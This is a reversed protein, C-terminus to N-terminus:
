LSNVILFLDITNIGIIIIDCPHVTDVVFERVPEQLFYFMKHFIIFKYTMIIKKIIGESENILKNKINTM